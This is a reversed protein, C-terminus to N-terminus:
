RLQRTEIQDPVSLDLVRVPDEVPVQFTELQARESAGLSGREAVPQLRGAHRSDHV